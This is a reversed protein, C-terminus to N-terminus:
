TDDRKNLDELDIIGGPGLDGDLMKIISGQHGIYRSYDCDCMPTYGYERAKRCFNDDDLVHGFPNNENIAEEEFHETYWPSPIKKYVDMSVLCFGGPLIKAPQLGGNGWADDDMLRGAVRYPPIRTSYNCGVIPINHSLLRSAGDNPFSQDSDIWLIHSAADGSKEQVRKVLMNRGNAIDSAQINFLGGLIGSASMHTVLTALCLMTSTCSMNHSPIAVSIRPM